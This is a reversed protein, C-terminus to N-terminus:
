LETLNVPATHHGKVDQEFSDRLDDVHNLDPSRPPYNIVSFDSSHEDLWGTVLQSKQSACNDQPFVRNGHPYCFMMFTHISTITIVRRVSNCQPLNGFMAVFFFWVMISGGHGQVTGVLYAPDM